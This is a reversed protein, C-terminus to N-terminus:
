KAEVNDVKLRLDGLSFNKNLYTQCRIEQFPIKSMSNFIVNKTEDGFCDVRAFSIRRSVISSFNM